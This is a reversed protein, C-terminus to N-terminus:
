DKAHFVSGMEPISSNLPTSTNATLITSVKRRPREANACVWAHFSGKDISVKESM